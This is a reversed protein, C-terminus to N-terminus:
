KLVAIKKKTDIGTGKIYVLYIGSAVEENNSNRCNWEIIQAEGEQGVIIVKSEEWVLEGRLTYIKVKVEGAITPTFLIKAVENKTPNVYGKEGGQVKVLAVEQGIFDQATKNGDLPSYCINQPTFEWGSKYPTVKCTEPLLWNFEYRSNKKTTNYRITSVGTLKVIVGDIGSGDKKTIRGRISYYDHTGLFNLTIDKDLQSYSSCPPTFIWGLKFPTVVGSDGPSLEGFRYYGETGTIVTDEVDGSLNITVGRIGDGFEDTARGKISYVRAALFDQTTDSVLPDYTVDEPTFVYSPDYPTVTYTGEALYQFQYFGTDNTAISTSADGTLDIAVGVVPNGDMDAVKGSITYGFASNLAFLSFITAYVVVKCIGYFGMHVCPYKWSKDEGIM